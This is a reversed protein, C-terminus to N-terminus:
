HDSFVFQEEGECLDSNDRNGSDDDFFTYHRWINKKWIKEDPDNGGRVSNIYFLNYRKVRIIQM